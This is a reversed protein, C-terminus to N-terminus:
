KSYPQSTVLDPIGRYHKVNFTYLILDQNIAIAAIVMDIVGTGNALVTDAYHDIAWQFAEPNPLVIQFKEIFKESAISESKNRADQILELAVLGPVGIVSSDLTNFWNVAPPYQRQLDIFIDTDILHTLSM